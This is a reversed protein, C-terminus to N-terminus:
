AKALREAVANWAAWREASSPFKPHDGRLLVLRSGGIRYERSEVYQLQAKYADRHADPVQKPAADSWLGEARFAAIVREGLGDRSPECVYM